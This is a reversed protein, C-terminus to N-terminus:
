QACNFFIKNRGNGRSHVLFEYRFTPLYSSDKSNCVVQMVIVTISQESVLFLVIYIKRGLLTHAFGTIPCMINNLVKGNTVTVVIDLPVGIASILFESVILTRLVM